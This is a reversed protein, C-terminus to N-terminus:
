VVSVAGYFNLEPRNVVAELDCRGPRLCAHDDILSAIQTQMLLETSAAAPSGGGCNLDILRPRLSADDRRSLSCISSYVAPSSSCTENSRARTCRSTKAASSASACSRSSRACMHPRSSSWGYAIACSSSASTHISDAFTLRRRVLIGRPLHRLQESWKNKHDFSTVRDLPRKNPDSSRARASRSNARPM